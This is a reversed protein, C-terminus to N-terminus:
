ATPPSSGIPPMAVILCYISIFCTSQKAFICRHAFRWNTHTTASAVKSRVQVFSSTSGWFAPRESTKDALRRPDFIYKLWAQAEVYQQEQNLRHAVLWPVYLFLEWFYKGHAGNFDIDDAAGSPTLPPEQWTKPTLSSLHELSVNAEKVLKGAFCTNM